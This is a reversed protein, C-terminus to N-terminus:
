PLDNFEILYIDYHSVTPWPTCAEGIDDPFKSSLGSAVVWCNNLMLVAWFANIREAAELDDPPETLVGSFVFRLNSKRLPAGLKNIGACGALSVAAACHYMGELLRASNMYYYSLLVEAQITHLILNPHHVASLDHALNQTILALLEAEASIAGSRNSSLHHMWLYVAGILGPAPRAPHGLPGPLLLSKRFRSPELFF